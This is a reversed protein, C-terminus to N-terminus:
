SRHADRMEKIKNIITQYFARRGEFSSSYFTCIKYKGVFNSKLEKKSEFNQVRFNRKQFTDGNTIYVYVTDNEHFHHSIIASTLKSTFKDIDINQLEEECRLNFYIEKKKM